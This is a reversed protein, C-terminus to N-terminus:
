HFLARASASTFDRAVVVRPQQETVIADPIMARGTRRAATASTDMVDLLHEAAYMAHPFVTLFVRAVAALENYAVCCKKQKCNNGNHKMRILPAAM